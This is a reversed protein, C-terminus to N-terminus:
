LGWRTCQMKKPMTMCRIIFHFSVCTNGTTQGGILQMQHNIFVVKVSLSPTPYLGERSGKPNFYLQAEHDVVVERSGDEPLYTERPYHTRAIEAYDGVLNQGINSNEVNRSTVIKLEEHYFYVPKVSYSCTFKRWGGDIPDGRM